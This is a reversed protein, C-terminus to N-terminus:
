MLEKAMYMQEPKFGAKTYLRTASDNTASVMLAIRSYGKRRCYEEAKELLLRGIGMGRFKEEVYIDYIFGFSLRTMMDGSEGVFLYGVFGHQGNEAIWIESNERKSLKEFVKVMHKSWEEKNLLTRQAESISKWGTEATLREVIPMDTKKAERLAVRV